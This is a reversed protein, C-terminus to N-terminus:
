LHQFLSSLKFCWIADCKLKVLLVNHDQQLTASRKM